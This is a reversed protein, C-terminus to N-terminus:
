RTRKHIFLAKTSEKGKNHKPRGCSSMIKAPPPKGKPNSPIGPPNSHIGPLTSPERPPNIHNGPPPPNYPKRSWQKPLTTSNDYSSMIKTPPPKGPPNSPKWPQTAPYGQLTPPNISKGSSNSPKGPTVVRQSLNHNNFQGGTDYSSM